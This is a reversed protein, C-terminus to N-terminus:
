IRRSDRIADDLPRATWGLDRQARSSDLSVDAPRPAAPPAEAQTAAVILESPLGLLRALRLGLAHRSLREGGGLHFRGTHTGTVLREIASAVSDPDIPTRYQDTFLRVQRGARLSRAIAETATPKPGHGRGVVLTVRAVVAGPDAGLIAEEGALKTRGYALIPGPPDDERRFPLTGDFVLDTSIAVLRIGRAACIRALTAGADVNLLRAREPERECADPDAVAACHVIGDPRTREVAAETSAPSVLDVRVEALGAPAPAAHTAALIEHRVALWPALRGGLLGGAGTVLIRV